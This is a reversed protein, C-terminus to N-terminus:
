VSHNVAVFIILVSQAQTLFLAELSALLFALVSAAVALPTLAATPPTWLRLATGAGLCDSSSSRSLATRASTVISRSSYTAVSSSNMLSWLRQCSLASVGSFRSRGISALSALRMKAASETPM